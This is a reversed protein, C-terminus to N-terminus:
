HVPRDSQHGPGGARRHRGESLMRARRPVVVFRHLQAMKELRQGDENRSGLAPVTGISWAASAPPLTAPVRATRHSLTILRESTRVITREGTRPVRWFRNTGVGPAQYNDPERQKAWSHLM